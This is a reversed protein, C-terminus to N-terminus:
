RIKLAFGQQQWVIKGPADATGGYVIKGAKVLAAETDKWTKPERQRVYLTHGDLQLLTFGDDLSFSGVQIDSLVRVRANAGIALTAGRLERLRKTESLSQDYGLDTFWKARGVNTPPNNVIEITGCGAAQDGTQRYITGCASEALKSDTPHQYDDVSSGGYATVQGTYDDFTAGPQTLVLSVRGGGGARMQVVSGGNVNISGKGALTGATLFVSGGSGTVYQAVGLVGARIDSDLQLHGAVKAVFAGGGIWPTGDFPNGWKSFRLSGSGCDRPAFISDYCATISTENQHDCANGGHSSFAWGGSIEIGPGKDEGYGKSVLDISVGEEVTMDGGVTVEFRYSPGDKDDTAPLQTHTLAAGSQVTFDGGIVTPKDLTLKTGGMALVSGAVTTAANVRLEGSVVALSGLAQESSVVPQHACGAANIVVIDAASPCAAPVEGAVLWNAADAFDDSTAGTWLYRSDPVVWNLSNQVTTNSAYVKQGVSADCDRVVAHDIADYVGLKLKWQQGPTQSALTVSSVVDGRVYLLQASVTAGPEFALDAGSVVEATKAALGGSVSAAKAFRVTNFSAGNLQLSSEAGDAFVVTSKAPVFAQSGAFVASGNVTLVEGATAVLTGEVDLDGTVTLAFGGMTLTAGAEVTLNSVVVNGQPLTPPNVTDAPVTVLDTAVVARGIDWNDPDTWVGSSAGTWAVPTGPVITAFSWGDTVGEGVSHQPALKAGTAKCNKIKLYDLDTAATGSVNLNFTETESDSTIELLNGETGKATLATEVTITSGAAVVLKTVEPDVVLTTFTMDGALRAVGNADGILKVVAQPDNAMAGPNTADSEVACTEITVGNKVWLRGGNRLLVKGYRFDHSMKEANIQTLAGEATAALAKANDIILTGADQAANKERVYVTGAGSLTTEGVNSFFRSTLEPKSPMNSYGLGRASLHGTFGALTADDGTLTIAIRGGGGMTYPANYWRQSGQAWIGGWGDQWAGTGAIAGCTIDISGGSGGEYPTEWASATILGDVTLTGGVVLRIAGGGGHEDTQRTSGNSGYDSPAYISGYCLPMDSPGYGANPAGIGGHSSGGKAVETGATALSIMKRQATVMSEEDITMNGGVELNIRETSGDKVDLHTIVGGDKVILDGPIRVVGKGCWITAGEGVITTTQAGFTQDTGLLRLQVGKWEIGDGLVLSNTKLYIRGTGDGSIVTQSLDLTLGVPLLLNAYNLLRIEGFALDQDMKTANPNFDTYGITDSSTVNEITVRGRGNDSTIEQYVTGPAGVHAFRANPSQHAEIKGAFADRDADEATQVISIRGGGASSVGSNETPVSGNAVIVGSGTVHAATIWIAGGTSNAKINCIGNAVIQGNVVADGNIVLRIAGGANGENKDSSMSGSGLDIPRKISGYAHSSDGGPSGGYASDVGGGVGPGKGSVFGKGTADIRAEGGVTLKGGIAVNLRNLQKDENTVHTWSGGTLTADGAIEFVDGEAYTTTFTVTGGSQTWSAVKKLPLNWTLEGSTIVIEDDEGTPEADWEGSYTCTAGRACIGAAAVAAFLIRKFGKHICRATTSM